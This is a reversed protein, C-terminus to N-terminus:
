KRLLSRMRNIAHVTRNLLLKFEKAEYDPHKLLILIESHKWGRRIIGKSQNINIRSRIRAKIEREKWGFEKPNELLIYDLVLKRGGLKEIDKMIEHYLIMANPHVYPPNIMMKRLVNPIGPYIYATM